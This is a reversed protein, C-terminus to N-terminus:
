NYQKSQTDAIRIYYTDARKFRVLRTFFYGTDSLVSDIAIQSLSYVVSDSLRFFTYVFVYFNSM